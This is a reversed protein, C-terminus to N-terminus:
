AKAPLDFWFTSGKGPTSEVGIIGGHQEVISKSISLGLGSGKYVDNRADLQQFKQFLKPLQEASIGPGHDIVSFRTGFSTESVVVAIQSGPAFKMANSLLNALTQIIKNEDCCIAKTVNVSQVIKVKLDTAMGQLAGLTRSVIQIPQIDAFQLDFKGEEIKKLDLLEDILKLMRETETLSIAILDKEREKGLGNAILILSGRISTMPSRLEHVLLAYFQELEENSHMLRRTTKELADAYNLTLDKGAVATSIWFVSLLMFFIMLLVMMALGFETGYFGLREGQLTLLGLIPPALLAFPVLRRAIFGGSTSDSLVALFSYKPLACLMGISLLLFLMASTAAMDTCIGIRYLSPVGYVYGEISLTSIAFVLLALAISTRYLIQKNLAAFLLALSILCFSLATNPGMRGPHLSLQKSMIDQSIVQDINFNCGAYECLVATGILACFIATLGGIVAWQTKGSRQFLL